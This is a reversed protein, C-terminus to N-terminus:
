LVLGTESFDRHLEQLAAGGMWGCVDAKIARQLSIGVPETNM